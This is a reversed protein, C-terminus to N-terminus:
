TVDSPARTCTRMRTRTRALLCGDVHRRGPLKRGVYEREREKEKMDGFRVETKRKRRGNM